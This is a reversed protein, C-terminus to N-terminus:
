RGLEKILLDSLPLIETSQGRVTDRCGLLRLLVKRSIISPPRGNWAPNLRRGLEARRCDDAATISGLEFRVSADNVAVLRLARRVAAVRNAFYECRSGFTLSYVRTSM